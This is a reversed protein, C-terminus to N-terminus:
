IQGEGDFGRIIVIEYKMFGYFLLFFMKVILKNSHLKVGVTM